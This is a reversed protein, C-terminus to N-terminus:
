KPAQFVNNREKGGANLEIIQGLTHKYSVGYVQSIKALEPDNLYFFRDGDRTATFQKKWIATQLPGFDTGKIHQESVMGVFADLKSPDGYLSKLRSALSTARIGTVTDEPDFKEVEKGKGDFVHTFDLIGSNTLDAGPQPAEGTIQEFTQVPHLGYAVRMQNYSPMGHDRGREVDIAGLDTVDAFCNPDLTPTVCGSTAGPGPIEFLTSRMSEDIQEDNRYQPGLLSNLVNKEGLQTLLDPNGFALDLSISLDVTGDAQPAVSVGQKSLSDLTQASYTGKAAEIDFDGHVMSHARFGVTAFENSVSPNVDPKYGTYAPLNIKLTPLFENYTIYEIEAGVIRRTIDFILDSDNLGSLKAAIRNHERVFLTQFATLAINENGRKDGTVVADTPDGGLRGMLDMAPATSADGRATVKPLYNGKMIMTGNPGRLWSDRAQDSGYVQSADLFGTIQTLQQRPTKGGTNPAAPTRNFAINGVENKFRELPGGLFPINAAAGPSEDRLDLDHDIFQGWAWVFQSLNNESFLNQGLDNFVADSVERANPGEQMQSTGNAYNAPAVRSYATDAQAWSPHTLNNGSGDITRGPNLQASASAIFVILAM